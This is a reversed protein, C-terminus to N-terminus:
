KPPERPSTIRSRVSSNCISQFSLESSIAEAADTAPLLASQPRRGFFAQVLFGASSSASAVELGVPDGEQALELALRFAVPGVRLRGRQVRLAVNPHAAMSANLKRFGTPGDGIRRTRTLSRSSNKRPARSSPPCSFGAFPEARERHVALVLEDAEYFQGDNM